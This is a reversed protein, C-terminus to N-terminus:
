FSIGLPEARLLEGRLELGLHSGQSVFHVAFVRKGNCYFEVFPGVEFQIVGVAPEVIREVISAFVWVGNALAMRKEAM